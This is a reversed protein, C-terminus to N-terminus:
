TNPLLSKLLPLTVRRRQELSFRDLADVLALLQRLDRSYRNLLYDAIMPDLEFGLQHARRYLAQRRDNDNLPYIRYVLGWGLRTRLDDRLQKLGSPPQTGTAVWPQENARNRNYWDFAKIQEQESLSDVNDILMPGDEVPWAPQRGDVVVVGGLCASLVSMMLSKGCGAPGWFYVPEPCGVECLKGLTALVETNRGCIIDALSPAEPPRIDLVLQQM